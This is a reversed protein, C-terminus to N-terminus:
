DEWSFMGGSRVGWYIAYRKAWNVGSYKMGALLMDDAQLRTLGWHADGSRGPVPKRARYILDHFIAAQIHRGIQPILSRLVRPISALDTKFGIGVKFPMDSWFASLEEEVLWCGEDVLWRLLPNKKSFIMGRAM